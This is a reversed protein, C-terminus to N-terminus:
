LYLWLYLCWPYVSSLPIPHASSVSHPMPDSASVNQLYGPNCLRLLFCRQWQRSSHCISVYYTSQFIERNAHIIVIPLYLSQLFALPHVKWVGCPRLWLLGCAFFPEGFWLSPIPPCLKWVLPNWCPTSAWVSLEQCSPSGMQPCSCLVILSCASAVCMGLLFFSLSSDEM